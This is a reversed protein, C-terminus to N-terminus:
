EKYLLNGKKVADYDLLLGVNDDINAQTLLKRFAEIGKVTVSSIANGERDTLILIDGVAVTEGQIKGTAVTGRGMIRFVDGVELVLVKETRKNVEANNIEEAPIEHLHSPNNPNNLILRSNCYECKTVGQLSELKLEAGCYPCKIGIAEVM